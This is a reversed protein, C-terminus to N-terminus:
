GNEDRTWLERGKHHEVKLLRATTSPIEALPTIDLGRLRGDDVFLVLNCETPTDEYFAFGVDPTESFGPVVPASPAIQFEL